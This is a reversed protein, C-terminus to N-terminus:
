FHKLLGIFATLIYFAKPGVHVHLYCGRVLLHHHSNVLGPTVVCRSADVVEGASRLGRGIAAIVGDRLLIDTGELERGDDDMTLITQANRILTEPM